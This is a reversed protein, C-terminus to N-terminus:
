AGGTIMNLIPEALFVVIGGAITLLSNARQSPDHSKLSLGFQVVGFGLMLFGIAKILTFIFNTLNSIVTEADGVGVTAFAVSATLFFVTATIVTVAYVRFARTHFPQIRPFPSQTRTPLPQEHSLFPLKRKRTSNANATQTLSNKKKM